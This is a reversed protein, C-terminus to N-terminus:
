DAEATDNHLDFCCRAEGYVVFCLEEVVHVCASEFDSQEHIEAVVRFELVCAKDVLLFFM